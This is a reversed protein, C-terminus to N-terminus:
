TQKGNTCSATGVSSPTGALSPRRAGEDVEGVDRTDLGTGQAFRRELCVTRKGAMCDGMRTNMGWSPTHGRRNEPKSTVRADLFKLNARENTRM